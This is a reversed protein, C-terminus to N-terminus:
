RAGAGEQPTVLEAQRARLADREAQESARQERVKSLAAEKRSRQADADAKVEAELAALREM